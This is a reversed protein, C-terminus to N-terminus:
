GSMDETANELLYPTPDHTAEYELDSCGRPYFDVLDGRDSRALVRHGFALPDDCDTTGGSEAARWSEQLRALDEPGMVEATEGDGTCVTAAVLHETAPQAVSQGASGCDEPASVGPAAYAHADRQARLAQMMSVMLEHGDVVRGELQVDECSGSEVAVTTGDAMLLLLRNDIQAPTTAACRAPDADPIERAAAVFADVGVVLADAPGEITVDRPEVRWCYRVATVQDLDGVSGDPWPQATEPCPATTYPDAIQAPEVVDPGDDARLAQVGLVSGVVALAAAGAVVTTAIRRQRRAARVVPSPDAVSDPPEPVVRALLDRVQEETM